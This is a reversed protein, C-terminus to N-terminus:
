SGPRGWREAANLRLTRWGAWADGPVRNTFGTGGSLTAHNWGEGRTYAGQSWLISNWFNVSGDGWGVNTGTLPLLMGAGDTVIQVKKNFGPTDTRLNKPHIYDKYLSSTTVGTNGTHLKTTDSFPTEQWDAMRFAYSCEQTYNAGSVYVTWQLGDQTWGPTYPQGFYKRLTWWSPYTNGSQVRQARDNPSYFLDIPAYNGLIVAGFGLPGNTPANIGFILNSQGASYMGWVQNGAPSYIPTWMSKGTVTPPNVPTFDAGEFGRNYPLSGKHDSAYTFGAQLIGRQNSQDISSKAVARAQGLTPILLSILISVIAIVVLLEVLTFGARLCAHRVVMQTRTM